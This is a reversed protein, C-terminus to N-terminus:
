KKFCLKKYLKEHTKPLFIGLFVFNEQNKM